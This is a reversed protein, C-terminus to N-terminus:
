MHKLLLDIFSCLLYYTYKCSTTFYMFYTFYMHLFSTEKEFWLIM